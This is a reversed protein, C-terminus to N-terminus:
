HKSPEDPVTPREGGSVFTAIEALTTITPPRSFEELAEGFLTELHHASGPEIERMAESLNKFWVAAGEVGRRTGVLIDRLSFFRMVEELTPEKGMDFSRPVLSLNYSMTVGHEKEAFQVVGIFTAINPCNAETFFAILRQFEEDTTRPVNPNPYEFVAAVRPYNRTDVAEQTSDPM